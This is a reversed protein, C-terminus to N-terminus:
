TENEIIDNLSIDHSISNLITYTGTKLGNNLVPINHLKDQTFIEYDYTNENLTVTQKKSYTSLYLKFININNYKYDNLKIYKEIRKTSFGKPRSSFFSAILHSIHSEMSSGINLALMSKINTYNNIIYKLKKIIIDKRKPNNLIITNVADIFYSKPKTNFIHLLYYREDSDTTIHHIAQKFHFECLYFKVSNNPDLKLEPIGSKIWSGGDALLCINKIKSFDYKMAIFDM